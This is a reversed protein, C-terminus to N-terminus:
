FYSTELVAKAVGGYGPYVTAGTIEQHSLLLLLESAEEIPLTFHVLEYRSPLAQILEDMSRRDVVRSRFLTFVGKQAYLNPNSAGPATILEIRERRLEDDIWRNLKPLIGNFAWLGLEKLGEPSGGTQQRRAAEVAAFYAAIFSNRTWDLLRTPLGYHQALALLSLFEKPPWNKIDDESLNRVM